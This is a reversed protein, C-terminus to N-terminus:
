INNNWGRHLEKHDIESDKFITEIEWIRPDDKLSIKMGQKITQKKFVKDIHTVMEVNDCKLKCQVVIM